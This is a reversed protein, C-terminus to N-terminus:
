KLLVFEGAKITRTKGDATKIEVNGEKTSVTQAYGWKSGSEPKALIFQNDKPMESKSDPMPLIKTFDVESPKTGDEWALTAKTGSIKEVKAQYWSNTAWEGLVKEGVKPKFETPASPKKAQAEKLFDTSSAKDKFNAVVDAPIKIIKEASVNFTQGSENKVVYVDGDIKSIEAGNWYSGTSIKALVIDGAKVDPKVGAKPFAFVDTINVDSPSSGDNWKVKVNADTVADVKGEYFSNQAWKAIVTEGVNFKTNQKVETQKNVESVEKGGLLNCGTFFVLLALFYITKNM